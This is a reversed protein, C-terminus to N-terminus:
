HLEAKDVSADEVHGAFCKNSVQALSHGAEFAVIDEVKSSPFFIAHNIKVILYM